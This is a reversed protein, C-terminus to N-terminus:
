SLLEMVMLSRLSRVHQEALNVQAKWGSKCTPQEMKLWSMWMGVLFALLVYNGEKFFFFFKASSRHLNSRRVDWQGFSLCMAVSLQFLLQCILSKRNTSYHGALVYPKIVSCFPFFLYLPCGAM